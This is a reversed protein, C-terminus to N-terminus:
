PSVEFYIDTKKTIKDKKDSTIEFSFYNYTKEHHVNAVGYEDIYKKTWKSIDENKCNPIIRHIETHKHEQLWDSSIKECKGVYYKDNKSKLVYVYVM